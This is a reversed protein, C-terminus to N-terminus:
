SRPPHRRLMRQLSQRFMGLQRAAESVNGHCSGLVAQIYEWQVRDISPLRPTTATSAGSISAVLEDAQAPKMLVHDARCTAIWDLAIFFAAPSALLVLRVPRVASTCLAFVADGLEVQDVDVLMCTPQWNEFGHCVEAQSAASQVEVSHEKLAELVAPDAASCAFLVRESSSAPAVTRAM